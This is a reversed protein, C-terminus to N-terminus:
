MQLRQRGSKRIQFNFTEDLTNLLWGQQWCRAALLLLSPLL